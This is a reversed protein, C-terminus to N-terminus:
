IRRTEYFIGGIFNKNYYQINYQLNNGRNSNIEDMNYGM